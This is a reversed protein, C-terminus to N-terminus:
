VARETSYIGGILGRLDPTRNIEKKQKRNHEIAVNLRPRSDKRPQYNLFFFHIPSPSQKGKM